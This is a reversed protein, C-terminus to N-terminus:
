GSLVIGGGRPVSCASRSSCCYDGACPPRSSASPGGALGELWSVIEGISQSGQKQLVTTALDRPAQIQAEWQEFAGYGNAGVFQGSEFVVADVAVTVNGPNQFNELRHGETTGNAFIQLQRQNQLIGPPSAVVARGPKVYLIAKNFMADTANLLIQDTTTWVTDIAAIAQSTRNRMVVAYLLAAALGVPRDTGVIQTLLAEFDPSEPGVLEVGQITSPVLTLQQATAGLALLVAVLLVRAM